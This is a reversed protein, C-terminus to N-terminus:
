ARVVIFSATFALRISVQVPKLSSLQTKIPAGAWRYMEVILEKSENRVSPDRDELLQLTAKLISKISVVKSGFSSFFM